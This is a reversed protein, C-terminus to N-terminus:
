AVTEHESGVSLLTKKPLVDRGDQLELSPQDLHGVGLFRRPHYVHTELVGEQCESFNGPDMETHIREREIQLAAGRGDDLDRLRRRFRVRGLPLPSDVQGFLSVGMDLPRAIPGTLGRKLYARLDIALTFLLPFLLNTVFILLEIGRCLDLADGPLVLFLAVDM